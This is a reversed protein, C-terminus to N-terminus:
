VGKFSGRTPIPSWTTTSGALLRSFWHYMEPASRIICPAHRRAPAHHDGVDIPTGCWGGLGQVWTLDLDRM